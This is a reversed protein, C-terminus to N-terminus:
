GQQVGLILTLFGLLKNWLRRYFVLWFLVGWVTEVKQATFTCVLFIIATWLWGYQLQDKMFSDHWIRHWGCGSWVTRFIRCLFSRTKLSIVIIKVLDAMFDPYHLNGADILHDRIMTNIKEGGLLPSAQRLAYKCAQLLYIYSLVTFSTFGVSRDVPVTQSCCPTQRIVHCSSQLCHFSAPFSKFLM